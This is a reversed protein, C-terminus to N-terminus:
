PKKGMVALYISVIVSSIVIIWQSVVTITIKNRTERHRVIEDIVPAHKTLLANLERVSTALNNIDESMREMKGQFRIFDERLTPLTELKQWVIVNDGKISEINADLLVMKTELSAIREEVSAM